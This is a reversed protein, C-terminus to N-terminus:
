IKRQEGIEIEKERERERAFINLKYKRHPWMNHKTYTYQMYTHTEERCVEVCASVFHNVILKKLPKGKHRMKKKIKFTELKIYTRAPHRCM